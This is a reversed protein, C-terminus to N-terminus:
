AMNKVQFDGWVIWREYCHKLFAVNVKIGVRGGQKNKVEVKM